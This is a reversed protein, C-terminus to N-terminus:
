NLFAFVITLVLLTSLALSTEHRPLSGSQSDQSITKNNSSGSNSAKNHTSSAQTSTGNEKEVESQSTSFLMSSVKIPTDDNNVANQYWNVGLADPVSMPKWGRSPLTPYYDEFVSVTQNNLEHELLIAGPSKPKALAKNVADVVSARDKGPIEGPCDSSGNPHLCWDNCEDDWMVATLNFVQEAIARVRNDIDGQPPRWYKPVRGSLDYIIQMTWGLEGLIEYNDKSSQLSHSWTHVAPQQSTQMAHKFADPFALIQSGIQIFVFTHDYNAVNLIRM